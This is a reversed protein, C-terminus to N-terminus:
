GKPPCIIGRQSYSRILRLRDTLVEAHRDADDLRSRDPLPLPGDCVIALRSFPLPLYISSWTNPFAVSRSASAALAHLPRGTLMACAVAGSKAIGAPGLPGDVVIAAPAPTSELHRVLDRLAEVGRHRSSGRVVTCGLKELVFTARDGDKGVTVLVTFGAGAMFGGLALADTECLAFIEGAFPFCQPKIVSGDGLLVASRLTKCHLRYAATAASLALRLVLGQGTKGVTLCARDAASLSSKM